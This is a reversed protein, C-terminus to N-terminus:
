IRRVTGKNELINIQEELENNYDDYENFSFKILELYNSMSNKYEPLIAFDRMSADKNSEFFDVAEQWICKLMFNMKAYNKKGIIKMFKYGDGNILMNKFYEKYDNYIKEIFGDCLKDLDLYSSDETTDIIFEFNNLNNFYIEKYIDLSMYDNIIEYFLDGDNRFGYRKEFTNNEKNYLILEKSLVHNIEHILTHMNIGFGNIIIVNKEDYELFAGGGFNNDMIEYYDSIKINISDDVINITAIINMNNNKLDNYYNVLCWNKKLLMFDCFSLNIERKKIFENFDEFFLIREEDNLELNLKDFVGVLENIYMNCKEECLVTGANTDIFIIGLENIIKQIKYEYNRGYYSIFGNILIKKLEMNYCNNLITKYQELFHM